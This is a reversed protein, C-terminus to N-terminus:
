NETQDTKTRNSVSNNDSTKSSSKDVISDDERGPMPQQDRHINATVGISSGIVVGVGMCLYPNLGTLWSIGYGIGAGTVTVLLWILFSKM